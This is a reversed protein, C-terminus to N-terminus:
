QASFFSYKLGSFLSRRSDVFELTRKFDAVTASAYVTTEPLAFPGPATVTFSVDRDNFNYLVLYKADYGELFDRISSKRDVSTRQPEGAVDEDAIIEKKIAVPDGNIADFGQTGAIGSSAGTSTNGVVNWVIEPAGADGNKWAIGGLALRKIEVVQGADYDFAHANGAEEWKSGSDFYLPLVEFGHAAVTGVYAGSRALTEYELIQDDRTVDAFDAKGALLLSEPDKGAEVKDQFGAGHAKMKLLAWELSGEAGAQASVGRWYAGSTKLERLVLDLVGASVVTLFATVVIALIVSFGKRQARM